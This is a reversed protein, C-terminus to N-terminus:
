LLYLRQRCTQSDSFSFGGSPYGGGLDEMERCCAWLCFAPKPLVCFHELPCLSTSELVLESLLPSYNRQEWNEWIGEIYEFLEKYLKEFPYHYTLNSRDWPMPFALLWTLWIWTLSFELLIQIKTCMGIYTPKSTLGTYIRSLPKFNAYLFKWM